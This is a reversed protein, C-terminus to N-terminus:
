PTITITAPRSKLPLSELNLEAYVAFTQPKDIDKKLVDKKFDITKEVLTSNDHSLELTMRRSNKKLPPAICVWKDQAPTPLGEQWPTVFVKMNLDDLMKWEYIVLKKESLNTLRFVLVAPENIHFTRVPSVCDFEVNYDKIKPFHEIDKVVGFKVNDESNCSSFIVVGSLILAALISRILIKM